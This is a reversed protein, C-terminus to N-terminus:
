AALRQPRPWRPLWRLKQRRFIDSDASVIASKVREDHTSRGLYRPTRRSGRARGARRDRGLHCKVTPWWWRVRLPRCSRWPRRRSPAYPPARRAGATCLVGPV